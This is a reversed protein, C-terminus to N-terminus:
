DQLVFRIITQVGPREVTVGDVVDPAYLWHSVAEAASRGFEDDTADVVTVDKAKGENTVTFKLQAWGAVHQKLASPPYVPAQRYLPIVDKDKYAITANPTLLRKVINDRQGIKVDLTRILTKLSDSQYLSSSADDYFREALEKAETDWGRQTLFSIATVNSGDDLNGLRFGEMLYYTGRDIAGTNGSAVCTAALRILLDGDNAERARSEVEDFAALVTQTAAADEGATTGKGGLVGACFACGAAGALWSRPGAPTPVDRSIYDALVKVADAQRGHSVYTTVILSLEDDNAPGRQALALFASDNPDAPIPTAAEQSKLSAVPLLVAVMLSSVFVIYKKNV